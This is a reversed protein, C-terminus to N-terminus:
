PSHLQVFGFMQLCNSVLKEIPASWIINGDRDHQFNAEVDFWGSSNNRYRKMFSIRNKDERSAYLQRIHYAKGDLTKSLVYKKHRPLVVRPSFFWPVREDFLLREEQDPYIKLYSYVLDMLYTWHDAWFGDKSVAMPSVETSATVENIFDQFSMLLFVNQEEIMAALQGPRWEGDCLINALSQQM